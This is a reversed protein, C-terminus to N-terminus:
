PNPPNFYKTGQKPDLKTILQPARYLTLLILLAPLPCILFDILTQVTQVLLIVKAAVGKARKVKRQTEWLRWPLAVLVLWCPLFLVTVVSRVWQWVIYVCYDRMVITPYDQQRYTAVRRVRVLLLFVMLTFPVSILYYFCDNMAAKFKYFPKMRESHKGLKRLGFWSLGVVLLTVAACTFYVAFTANIEGDLIFIRMLQLLALAELLPLVLPLLFLLIRLPSLFVVFPVSNAFHQSTLFGQVLLFYGYLPLGFVYRLANWVWMILRFPFEIALLLLHKKRPEDANM